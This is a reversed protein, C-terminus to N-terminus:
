ELRVAKPVGRIRVSPRRYSQINGSEFKTDKKHRSQNSLHAQSECRDPPNIILFAARIPTVVSLRRLFNYSGWVSLETGRRQNIWKRIYSTWTVTSNASDGILNRRCGVEEDIAHKGTVSNRRERHRVGCV